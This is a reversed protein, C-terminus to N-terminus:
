IPRDDQKTVPASLRIPRRPQELLAAVAAVVENPRAPLALFQDAEEDMALRRHPETGWGTLVIVPLHASFAEHRMRRLLCEDDASRLYLDSIVLDYALSALRWLATEVDTAIDVDYGAHTLVSGYITQCDTNGHALLIRGKAMAGGCWSYRLERRTAEAVM